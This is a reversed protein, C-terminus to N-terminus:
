EKDFLKTQTDSYYARMKFKFDIFKVIYILIIKQYFDKATDSDYTHSSLNRSVLMDMWNEAEERLGM